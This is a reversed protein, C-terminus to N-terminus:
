AIYGALRFQCARKKSIKTDDNPLADQQPCSFPESGVDISLLLEDVLRNQGGIKLPQSSECQSGRDLPNSAKLRPKTPNLLPFLGSYGRGHTSQVGRAADSLSNFLRCRKNNCPADEYPLHKSIQGYSQRSLM